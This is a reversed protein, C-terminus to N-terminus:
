SHQSQVKRKALAWRMLVFINGGLGGILCSLGYVFGEFMLWFGLQKFLIDIPNKGSLIWTQSNYWNSFPPRIIPLFIIGSVLFYIWIYDGEKLDGKPKALTSPLATASSIKQKQDISNSSDRDNQSKRSIIMEEDYISNRKVSQPPSKLPEPPNKLTESTETINAQSVNKNDTGGSSLAPVYDTTKIVLRGNADRCATGKSKGDASIFPKCNTIEAFAINCNVFVLVFFLTYIRSM